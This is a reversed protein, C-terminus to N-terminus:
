RRPIFSTARSPEVARVLSFDRRCMAMFAFRDAIRPPLRHTDICAHIMAHLSQARAFINKQCRFAVTKTCRASVLPPQLGAHLQHRQSLWCALARAVIDSPEVCRRSRPHHELM